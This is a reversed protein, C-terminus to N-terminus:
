TKKRLLDPNTVVQSILERLNRSKSIANKVQNQYNSDSNYFEIMERMERKIVEPQVDRWHGSWLAALILVTMDLPNTEEYSQQFFTEIREGLALTQKVSETLEAGFHMFQKLKQTHALFSGLQRSLDRVLETQTQLGVRTVSLFHNIAPRKGQNFLNTDFYIHGDTMSMLNTQIYGSIEGMVTEAVALCTISGKKFNGAREMLRAHIYFIDGPYSSRGPFRKALLSIERYFKAHTTMDDLILLVDKGQDKYYEAITMATYPTLYILGAPDSSYSAVVVMNKLVGKKAFFDLYQKLEIRRKAIAAYICIMGARTQNLAIQFLLQTKGTKRDGIILERQGRGLPILLDVLSVGTEFPRDVNKRHTIGLPKKELPRYEKVKYSSSGLFPNGLPNVVKGLIGEGLGITLTENSRAVKTGVRVFSHSLLLVEVFKKELSLIQGIEGSEFFVVEFPKASPLGTVYALSHQIESVFGIEGVNEVYYNFDRM